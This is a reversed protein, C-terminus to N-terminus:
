DAIGRAIAAESRIVASLSEFAETKTLYASAGARKMAEIVEAKDHLSLGIIRVNSNGSSIIQTAEIGDMEPMNVDMVIVDLDMERTQEVADRGNVAEAIVLLDEEGEILNRLGTRVMQHDDVLLIRIQSDDGNREPYEPAPPVRDAAVFGTSDDDTIPILLNIKTGKGPETNIKMRGGLWDLREYINFLGFGGNKVPTPIQDKIKFGKGEDEVIVQVQEGKRSLTIQAEQVDAHKIVNFLLERVCQCLTRRVEETLVKLQDDERVTVDLNHKKMKNAVWGINAALGEKELSPPPKLDSMLERTFTIASNTLDAIEVAESRSPGPLSHKLLLDLKMKSMALIQGLNDHLETALRQREHEEAKSLESTLSKLQEQYTLLAATREKVRDELTENMEQLKKESKKRATIDRAIKSAGVVQGTSDCIPSITLSVHLQTGDKRVRVTEFHDIRNGRRLEKLIITEEDLRDNPILLTVPQGVAEESTYGFIREASKNWSTIIGDLNKSIIADDSSEIIASLLNKSHEQSKRGTIDILMNIGGTLKDRSDFIPIPYPTFWIRKGDPREAIAESGVVPRGEQLAVAMPCQNHPLPSGDPNFLKWTVCWQDTNLKPVRGSFKVAAANFYTLRGEADTIYIAVPLNDLVERLPMQDANERGNAFTPPQGASARNNEAM